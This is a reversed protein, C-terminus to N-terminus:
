SFAADARAPGRIYEPHADKPKVLQRPFLPHLDPGGPLVIALGCFRGAAKQSDLCVARLCGSTTLSCSPRPIGRRSRNHPEGQEPLHQGTQPLWAGPQGAGELRGRAWRPRVYALREDYDVIRNLRHLEMLVCGNQPPVRSGYAWNKGTSVPYIPVGHENAVRVCECVEERNGPRIIAPVKQTTAFTVIEAASLTAPDTLVHEAGVIGRWAELVEMLNNM